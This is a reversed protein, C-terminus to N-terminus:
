GEQNGVDPSIGAQTAKPSVKTESMVGNGGEGPLDWFVVPLLVDAEQHQGDDLGKSVKDNMPQHRQGNDHMNVVLSNLVTEPRAVRTVREHLLEEPLDKAEAEYMVDCETRDADQSSVIDKVIEERSSLKSM